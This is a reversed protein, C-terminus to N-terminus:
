GTARSWADASTAWSARAPKRLWRAPASARVTLAAGVPPRRGAKVIRVKESSANPRTVGICWPHNAADALPSPTPCWYHPTLVSQKMRASAPDDGHGIPKDEGDGLRRRHEAQRVVKDVLQGLAAVKRAKPEPPALHDRAPRDIQHDLTSEFLEVRLDHNPSECGADVIQRM